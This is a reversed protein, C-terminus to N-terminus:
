TEPSGSVTRVLVDDPLQTAAKLATVSYHLIGKALIKSKSITM